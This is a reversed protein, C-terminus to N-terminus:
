RIIKKYTRNIYEQTGFGEKFQALPRNLVKGGDFTSTGFSLIEFKEDKAVEILKTYLFENAFKDTRNQKVALYQTHFNKKGFLFIMSAAILEDELYVGYFQTNEKLRNQKFDLLEGLTHIPTKTFKIYNDCLVEYFQAIEEATSLKKFSLGNKLSYRYDRRRSSTYNSIIEENYKSFDIYYGVEASVIYGNIFFYYDLLETPSKQYIRGTQKLIIEQINNDILYKDLQQFILDLNGIKCFNKGVILGGYTSGQHSNLVRGETQIYAPIVAVINSGNLFLLSNDIFRGRPHYDLFNRTQLFTGNMSDNLVFKDWRDQFYDNYKEIIIDKAM